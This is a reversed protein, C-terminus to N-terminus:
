HTINKDRWLGTLAKFLPKIEMHDSKYRTSYYSQVTSPDSEPFDHDEEISPTDRNLGLHYGPSKLKLHNLAHPCFFPNGTSWSASAPFLMATSDTMSHMLLKVTLGQNTLLLLSSFFLQNYQTFVEQSIPPLSIIPSIKRPFHGSMKWFWKM